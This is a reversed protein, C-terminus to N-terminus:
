TFRARLLSLIFGVLGLPISLINLILYVIVKGVVVALALPGWLVFGELGRRVPATATFYFERALPFLALHLVVMAWYVLVEDFRRGAQLGQVM